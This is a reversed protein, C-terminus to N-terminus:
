VENDMWGFRRHIIRYCPLRLFDEMQAATFTMGSRGYFKCGPKFGFVACSCLRQQYVPGCTSFNVFTTRSVTWRHSNALRLGLRVGSGGVVVSDELGLSGWPGHLRGLLDMGILHNEVVKFRQFKFGAFSNAVRVGFDFNHYSLLGNFYSIAFASEKMKCEAVLPIIPLKSLSFIIMGGMHCGHVANDQFGQVVTTHPCTERNFRNVFGDAFPQYWIGYGHSEVAVNGSLVNKFNTLVFAGPTLETNLGCFNEKTLAVLNNAIINNSEAGTELYITHGVTDYLVNQLLRLGHVENLVIGRHYSTHISCQRVYSKRMFGIRNFYIPFRGRRGEQGTRSIEVNEMRVISSEHGHSHVHIQVGYNNPYVSDEAGQIKINHTLLGVEARLDIIRRDRFEKTGVAEDGATQRTEALHNYQLPKSLQLCYGDSLVSVIDVRETESPNSYGLWFSTSTVIISSGVPWDVRQQLCIRETGVLAPERLRTWTRVRPEGHLDMICDRCGILKAGYTPLEQAVVNGHLTITAKHRFPEMETGVTLRGGHAIFLYLCEFELDRRDFILHGEILVFYFKPTSYDLMLTRGTQIWITDGEIPPPNGGWSSYRSWLDVYQYVSSISSAALGVGAVTLEVLGMGTSRASTPGHNGTTCMVRTNNTANADHPWVPLMSANTRLEDLPAHTWLVECPVGAIKVTVNDTADFGRGEILLRTGGATSGRTISITYVHPVPRPVDLTYRLGAVSSSQGGWSLTRESACGSLSLEAIGLLPGAPWAWTQGDAIVVRLRRAPAGGFSIRTETENGDLTVRAGIYWDANGDTSRSLLALVQRAKAKWKINLSDLLHPADLEMSMMIADHGSTLFFTDVDGDTLEMSATPHYLGALTAIGDPSPLHEYLAARAEALIEVTAAKVEDIAAYFVDLSMRLQGPFTNAVRWALENRTQSWPKPATFLRAERSEDCQMGTEKNFRCRPDDPPHWYLKWTKGLNKQFYTSEIVYKRGQELPVDTRALTPSNKIGGNDLVPRGDIYLIHGDDAESYFTATGTTNPIFETRAHCFFNDTFEVGGITWAPYPPAGASSTPIQRVLVTDEVYTTLQDAWYKREEIKELNAHQFNIGSVKEAATPNGLSAHDLFDHPVGATKWCRLMWEEDFAMEDIAVKVQDYLVQAQADIQRLSAEIRAQKCWPSYLKDELVTTRKENCPLMGEVAPHSDVARAALSNAAAAAASALDTGPTRTMALAREILPLVTDALLQATSRYSSLEGAWELPDYIPDLYWSGNVDRAEWASTSNYIHSPHFSDFAAPEQLYTVTGSTTSKQWYEHAGSQDYENRRWYWGDFMDPLVFTCPRSAKDNLCPGGGVIQQRSSMVGEVGGWHPTTTVYKANRVSRRGRWSTFGLCRGSSDDWASCRELAGRPVRFVDGTRKVTLDQGPPDFLRKEDDWKLAYRGSETVVDNGHFKATANLAFEVAHAVQPLMDKVLGDTWDAVVADLRKVQALGSDPAFLSPHPQLNDPQWKQELHWLATRSTAEFVPTARFTIRSQSPAVRPVGAKVGVMARISAMDDRKGAYGVTMLNGHLEDVRSPLYFQDFNSSKYWPVGCTVIIVLQDKPVDHLFLGLLEVQYGSLHTKFCGSGTVALTDATFSAACMGGSPEAPDVPTGSIVIEGDRSIRCTEWAPASSPIADLEVVRPPPLKVPRGKILDSKWQADNPRCTPTSSAALLRRGFSAASDINTARSFGESWPSVINSDVSLTIPCPVAQSEVSGLQALPSPLEYSVLLSPAEIGGHTAADLTRFTRVGDGSAHSILIVIVCSGDDKWGPLSTLELILSSLDPSEEPQSGSWPLPEWIISNNAHTRETFVSRLDAALM